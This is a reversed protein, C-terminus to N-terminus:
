KRFSLDPTGKFCALIYPFSDTIYYGYVGDVTMGNCEDLDGTSDVYEYDDRYTGDFTGGPDGAGSPRLGSKLQFSSTAKRVVDGDDFYSGFIPYGDAAFGVVPSEIVTDSYFLANPTGHYHYTGDPQTHANHSDVRFGNAAFMPDFRWPQNINNCGTREDGVGFCAAALVDSKVGNLMIANDYTLSLGTTTAAMQPAATVEYVDSQEAVNNPFGPGDNFDHNPIANTTFTCTGSASEIVLDGNFAVSRGLDMVSSTYSEVYDACNGSGNTLIADTIDIPDGNGPGGPDGGAEVTDRIQELAARQAETAADGPLLNFVEAIDTAMDYMEQGNGNQELVKFDISRVAWATLSADQYSHYLHNRGVFNDDSFADSFNVSDYIETVNNGAVSSITAFLDTVNVLAADRVGQRTVDVGSVILPARLGGEYVSNKSHPGAFVTRDIVQAPTGNDGIFIVLTNDREDASLSALLRGIEADMAEIAALYYDRRNNAIHTATGSLSRNHLNNPPLHFPGHPAAYAVWAFWPDNQAGIWNIALDTLHTTNYATSPQETGNTTLTWNFYDDVNNLNGAYHQIGISAPHNSGGGIHWKGFVASAYDQTEPYSALYTQISEYAPDLTGPTGPVGNNIGYHGTILAARTTACSPTSWFNDFVIGNNALEDLTPTDPPDLSYPYQASADVGLDDAIILLINPADSGAPPPPPPPPDIVPPNNGGGGGGGCAAVFLM